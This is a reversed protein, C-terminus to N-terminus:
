RNVTFYNYWRGQVQSILQENKLYRLAHRIMHASYPIQSVIDNLRLPEPEKRLLQYVRQVSPPMLDFSKKGLLVPCSM